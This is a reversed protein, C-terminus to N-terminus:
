SSVTKIAKVGLPACLEFIKEFVQLNEVFPLARRLTQEEAPLRRRKREGLQQMDGIGIKGKCESHYLYIQRSASAIGISAHLM